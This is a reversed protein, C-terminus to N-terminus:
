RIISNTAVQNCLAATTCQANSMEVYVICHLWVFIAYFINEKLTADDCLWTMYIYQCDLFKSRQLHLCRWILIVDLELQGVVVKVWQGWFCICKAGVCKIYINCWLSPFFIHFHEDTCVGCYLHISSDWVLFVWLKGTYTDVDDKWIIEM